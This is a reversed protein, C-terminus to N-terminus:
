TPKSKSGINAPFYSRSSALPGDCIHLTFTSGNQTWLAFTTWVQNGPFGDNDAYFFCSFTHAPGPGNLYAGDVDIWRVLWAYGQVVFDDALDSNMASADTFTASLTM